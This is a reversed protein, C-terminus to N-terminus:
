DIRDPWVLDLLETLLEEIVAATREHEQYPAGIPDEIDDESSAGLLDSPERGEGLRVVWQDLPEGFRRPGIHHARRVAEKLTFTKHWADAELVALERVHGRDMGLILTSATLLEPTVQLSRRDGSDIGRKTLVRVTEHPLGAGGELLGASAVDATINRDRLSRWAIADAVPSRCRNGTCVFLIDAM